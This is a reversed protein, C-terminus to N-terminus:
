NNENLKSAIKAVRQGLSFALDTEVKQIEGCPNNEVHGAGYPSGGAQTQNLSKETYPNGVILCGHHLLPIMANLLVAEQGGHMSNSSGFVAAPKNVLSGNLWQTTTQDWFHKVSAPLGGFWSPMGLILGDCNNLMDPTAILDNSSSTGNTNIEPIVALTSEAHGSYDIGRAIHNALQEVHGHRSYYLILINTTM